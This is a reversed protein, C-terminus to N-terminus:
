QNMLQLAGKVKLMTFKEVSPLLWNIGFLSKLKPLGTWLEHSDYILIKRKFIAPLYACLLGSLDHAHYIDPNEKFAAQVLKYMTIFINLRYFRTKDYGIRKIQFPYKKSLVKESPKRSLITINFYKALTTAENLIRSDYDVNSITIMCIKKIKTKM